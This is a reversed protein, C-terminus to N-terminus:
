DGSLVIGCEMVSELERWFICWLLLSVRLLSNGIEHEICYNLSERIARAKAVVLNGSHDRICLVASSPGHNGKSAGDTSCKRLNPPCPNWRVIKFSFKPKYLIFKSITDNIGWLVRFETFSGGHIITNMRKVRYNGEVACCLRISQKLYLIPDVIGIVSSLEWVSIVTFKGNNIKTWWAEDGQNCLYALHLNSQVHVVYELVLEGMTPYNWTGEEKLFEGFIKIPHCTQVDFANLYLPGLNYSNHYWITSINGRVGGGGNVLMHKWIHSDGKLQVPSHIQKRCSKIM